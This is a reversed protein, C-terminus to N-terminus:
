WTIKIRKRSQTQGSIIEINEEPIDLSESLFRTLEANAKGHEPIAHVRIKITGDSMLGTCENKPSSPTIKVTLTITLDHATLLSAIYAALNM